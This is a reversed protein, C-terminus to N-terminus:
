HYSRFNNVYTQKERTTDYNRMAPFYEALKTATYTIVYSNPTPCQNDVYAKKGSIDVTFLFIFM